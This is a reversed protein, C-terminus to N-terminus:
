HGRRLQLLPLRWPGGPIPDDRGDGDVVQPPYWILMMAIIVILVVHFVLFLWLCHEPFAIIALLGAGQLLAPGIVGRSITIGMVAMMVCLIVTEVTVSQAVTFKMYVGLIRMGLETVAGVALLHCLQRTIANVWILRRLVQVGLGFICFGILPMVNVEFSMATTLPDINSPNIVFQIVQVVVGIAGFLAGIMVGSLSLDRRRYSSLQVLLEDMSPYRKTPDFHLGRAIVSFLWLPRERNCQPTQMAGAAMNDHLEEM